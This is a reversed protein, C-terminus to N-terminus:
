RTEISKELPPYIKIKENFDMFQMDVVLGESGGPMYAQMSAKRILKEGPDIWVTYKFDTYKLELFPNVVNPRLELVVTKIGDVRETGLNKIIPIDKFKFLGLPNFETIFLESQALSNGKLTFWRDSWPDKMYTTDEIQIFEMQSKQMAGKIHVRNPEVREGEILTITDKGGQKVEVSYRYSSCALTNSLAKNFLEKESGTFSSLLSSGWWLIILLVVAVVAAPFIRRRNLVYWRPWLM